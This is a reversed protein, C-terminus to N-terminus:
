RVLRVREAPPKATHATRLKGPLWGYFRWTRQVDTDASGRWVYLAHGVPIHPTAMHSYPIGKFEQQM